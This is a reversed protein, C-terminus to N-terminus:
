RNLPSAAMFRRQRWAAAFAANVVYLPARVLSYRFRAPWYQARSRQSPLPLRIVDAQRQASGIALRGAPSM